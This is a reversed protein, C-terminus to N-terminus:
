FNVFSGLLYVRKQVDAMDLHCWHCIVSTSQGERNVGEKDGGFGSPDFVGALFCQLFPGSKERCELIGHRPWAWAPSPLLNVQINLKILIRSQVPTTHNNSWVSSRIKLCPVAQKNDSLYSRGSPEDLPLFLALGYLTSSPVSSM